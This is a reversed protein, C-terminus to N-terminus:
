KRLSLAQLSRLVQNNLIKLIKEKKQTLLYGLIEDTKNEETSLEKSICAPVSMSTELDEVEIIKQTNILQPCILRAITSLQNSDANKESTAEQFEKLFDASDGEAQKSKMNLWSHM